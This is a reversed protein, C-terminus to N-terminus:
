YVGCMGDISVEEVLLEEVEDDSQVEADRVETDEALVRAEKRRDWGLGPLLRCGNRGLNGGHASRAPFISPIGRADPWSRRTGVRRQGGVEAQGHIRAGGAQIM